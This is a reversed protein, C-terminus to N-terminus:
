DNSVTSRVHHHLLTRRFIHHGLAYVGLILCPVGFNITQVRYRFGFPVYLIAYRLNVSLYYKNKIHYRYIYIGICIHNILKIPLTLIEFFCRGVWVCCCGVAGVWWPGAKRWSSAAYRSLLANGTVGRVNRWLATPRHTGINWSSCCFIVLEHPVLPMM